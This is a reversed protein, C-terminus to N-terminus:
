NDPANQRDISSDVFENRLCQQTGSTKLVEILFNKVIM